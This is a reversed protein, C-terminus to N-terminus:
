DVGDLWMDACKCCKPCLWKKSINRRFISRWKYDSDIDNYWKQCMPKGPDDFTWDYLHTYCKNGNEKRSMGPIYARGDKWIYDFENSIM